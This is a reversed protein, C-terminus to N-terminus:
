VKEFVVVPEGDVETLKARVPMGIRVEGPGIGVVRSMMRVGETLDILAVNYDGGAEPKRRVTTSSYVTGTGGAARPELVVSGCHPCAVRPYFVCRSCSRCYQLVFRGDRLALRYAAEPGLDGQSPVTEM